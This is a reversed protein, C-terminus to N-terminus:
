GGVETQPITEVPKVKWKCIHTYWIQVINVSRYMKGVDEGGVTILGRSGNQEGTRQNLAFYDEHEKKVKQICLLVKEL